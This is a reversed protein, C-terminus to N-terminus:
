FDIGLMTFLKKNYEGFPGRTLVIPEVWKVHGEDSDRPNGEVDATYTATWYTVDGHNDDGFVFELNSARLGTEEYLERVAAESCTEGPDVKGGPLGWEVLRGCRNCKDENRDTGGCGPCPDKLRSVALCKGADNVSLVCAARPFEAM